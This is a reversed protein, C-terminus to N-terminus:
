EITQYEWKGCVPCVSPIVDLLATDDGTDLLVLHLLSLNTTVPLM